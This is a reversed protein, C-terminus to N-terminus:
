IALTILFEINCLFNILINLFLNENNVYVSALLVGSALFPLFSILFSITSNTFIVHLIGYVFSSTAIFLGKQSIVNRFATRFVIEEVVPAFILVKFLAFIPMIKIEEIISNTYSFGSVTVVIYTTLFIMTTLLFMVIAKTLLKKNIFEKFDNILKGRYLYIYSCLLIFSYVLCLLVNSSDFNNSLLYQIIYIWVLYIFLMSTSNLINSLTKYNM